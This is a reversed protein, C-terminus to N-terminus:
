LPGLNEEWTEAIWEGLVREERWVEKGENNSLGRWGRYRRKSGQASTWITKLPDKIERNDDVCGKSSGQMFLM